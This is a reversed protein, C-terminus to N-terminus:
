ANAGYIRRANSCNLASRFADFARDLEVLDYWQVRPPNTALSVTAFQTQGFTEEDIPGSEFCNYRLLERYAAAQVIHGREIAGTKWDIVVSRKLTESTGLFDLTGGFGITPQFLPAEMFKARLGLARRVWRASALFPAVHEQDITEEDLEDLFDLRIAEHVKTGRELYFPDVRSYDPLFGNETLTDTVGALKREGHWYAHKKPDFWNM